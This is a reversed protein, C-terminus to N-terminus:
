HATISLEKNFAKMIQDWEAETTIEKMQFHFNVLNELSTIRLMNLDDALKQLESKTAEKKSLDLNDDANRSKIQQMLDKQSNILTKLADLVPKKKGEDSINKKIADQTKLFPDSSKDKEAKKQDKEKSKLVSQRSYEIILNWEDAEIKAVIRIRDEIVKQQLAIRQNMLEDFFVTFEEISTNRNANLKKFSKLKGKREKDFTKIYKTAAKLDATIEKKREKDVVYKKVGKELKDILFYESVGGFFLMSILAITGIIM